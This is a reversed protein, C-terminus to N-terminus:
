FARFAVQDIPFWVALVFRALLNPGSLPVNILHMSEEPRNSLHWQQRRWSSQLM